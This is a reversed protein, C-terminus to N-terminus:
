AQDAPNPQNRQFLAMSVEKPFVWEAEGIASHLRQIAAETGYTALKVMAAYLRRMPPTEDVNVHTPSLGLDVMAQLLGKRTTTAQSVLQYADKAETSQYEKQWFEPPMDPHHAGFKVTPQALPAQPRFAPSTLNM